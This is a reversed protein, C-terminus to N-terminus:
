YKSFKGDDVEEDFDEDFARNSSPPAAKHGGGGHGGSHMMVSKRANRSSRLKFQQMLDQLQM